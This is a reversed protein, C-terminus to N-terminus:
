CSVVAPGPATYAKGGNDPAGTSGYINITIGPDAAKYAGPFSVTAPSLAGSGGINLQGCSSYFQAGGQSYASHLAIIEARLLYQGPALCEPLTFNAWGNNAILHDVGWKKTSTDFTDQGIKFWQLGTASSTAADGVKALYAMVPGKHSAAIPNDPDSSGQPGGIAHQFWIGVDDGPNAAVVATSTAGAAGCVINTSTVDYVPNNTSPVRLAALNPQAAGNVSLRQFYGHAQVAAGFAATTLLSLHM